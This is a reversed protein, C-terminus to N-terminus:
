RWKKLMKMFGDYILLVHNYFEEICPLIRYQWRSCPEPHVALILKLLRDCFTRQLEQVNAHAGAGDVMKSFYDSTM